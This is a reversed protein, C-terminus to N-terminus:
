HVNGHYGAGSLKESNFGQTTVDRPSKWISRCIGPMEFSFPPFFSPPVYGGTPRRFLPSHAPPLHICLSFLLLPPPSSTVSSASPCYHSFFFSFSFSFFSSSCFSSSPFVPLYVFEGDFVFIATEGKPIWEPEESFEKQYVIRPERWTERGNESPMLIRLRTRAPDGDFFATELNRCITWFEMWTCGFRILRELQWIQPIDAFDRPEGSGEGKNRGRKRPNKSIRAPM